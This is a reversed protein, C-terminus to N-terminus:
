RLKFIINNKGGLSIETLPKLYYEKHKELRTGDMLFTGNSSKDVVMYSNLGCIYTIELHERSVKGNSLTHNCVAPDRGVLIKKDGPLNLMKGFEEGKICVMAGSLEASMALSKTVQMTSQDNM